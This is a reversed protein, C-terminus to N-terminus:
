PWGTGGNLRLLPAALFSQMELLGPSRILSLVLRSSRGAFGFNLKVTREAPPPSFCSM